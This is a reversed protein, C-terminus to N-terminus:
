NRKRWLAFLFDLVRGAEKGAFTCITIPDQLGGGCWGRALEREIALAIKLSFYKQRMEFNGGGGGRYLFPGGLLYSDFPRDDNGTLSRNDRAEMLLPGTTTVTRYITM